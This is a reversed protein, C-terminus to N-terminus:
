QVIFYATAAAMAILARVARAQFGAGGAGRCGNRSPSHICALERQDAEDRYIRVAVPGRDGDSSLQYEGGFAPVFPVGAGSGDVLPAIWVPAQYLRRPALLVTGNPTVQDLVRQTSYVAGDAVPRDFLWPGRHVFGFTVIRYVVGSDLTVYVPTGGIVESYLLTAGGAVQALAPPAFPWPGTM